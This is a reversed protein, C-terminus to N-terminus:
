DPQIQDDTGNTREQFPTIDHEKPRAHCWLQSKGDLVHSIATIENVRTLYDCAEIASYIFSTCSTRRWALDAACWRGSGRRLLKWVNWESLTNDEKGQSTVTKDTGASGRLRRADLRATIFTDASPLLKRHLDMLNAPDFSQRSSM